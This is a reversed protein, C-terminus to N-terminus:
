KIVTVVTAMWIYSLKVVNMTQLSLEILGDHKESAYEIM